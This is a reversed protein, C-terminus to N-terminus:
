PRENKYRFKDKSENSSLALKGSESYKKGKDMNEM